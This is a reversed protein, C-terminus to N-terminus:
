RILRSRPLPNNVGEREDDMWRSVVRGTGHRNRQAAGTATSCARESYISPAGHCTRALVQTFQACVGM